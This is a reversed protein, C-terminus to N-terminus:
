DFGTRCGRHFPGVSRCGLGQKSTSVAGPNTDPALLTEYAQGAPLLPLTAWDWRKVRALRAPITRAIEASVM